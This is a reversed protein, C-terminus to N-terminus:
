DKPFLRALLQNAQKDPDDANRSGAVMLKVVVDNTMHLMSLADINLGEDIVVAKIGRYIGRHLDVFANPDAKSMVLGRCM